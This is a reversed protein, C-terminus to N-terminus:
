VRFQNMGEMIRKGWVRRMTAEAPKLTWTRLQTCVTKHKEDKM